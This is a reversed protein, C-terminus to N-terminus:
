QSQARADECPADSGNVIRMVVYDQHHTLQVVIVEDNGHRAANEFLNATARGLLREDGRVLAEDPLQVEIERLAHAHRLEELQATALDALNVLEM